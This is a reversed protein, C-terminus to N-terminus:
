KDYYCVETGACLRVHASKFHATNFLMMDLPSSVFVRKVRSYVSRIDLFYLLDNKHLMAM